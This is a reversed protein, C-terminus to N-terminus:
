IKEEFWKCRHGLYPVGKQKGNRPENCIVRQWTFGHKTCLSCGLENLEERAIVEFPDGYCARTMERQQESM